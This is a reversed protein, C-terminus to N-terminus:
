YGAHDAEMIVIPTPCAWASIIAKARLDGCAFNFTTDATPAVSEAPHMSYSRGRLTISDPLMRWAPPPAAPKPKRQKSAM